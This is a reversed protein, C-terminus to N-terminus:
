FDILLITQIERTSPRRFVGDEGPSAIFEPIETRMQGCVVGLSNNASLTDLNESYHLPKPTGAVNRSPSVSVSFLRNQYDKYYDPDAGDKKPRSGTLSDSGDLSFSSNFGEIKLGSNLFRLEDLNLSFSIHVLVYVHSPIYDKFIPLIDFFYNLKKESSFSLKLLLTNNKFINEFLFDLPNISKVQYTNDFVFGLNGFLKEKNESSNIFEQFKIVDAQTGIVPFNFKGKSYTIFTNKNEFFLQNKIDAAFVYPAFALKDTELRTLWWKPSLISDAMYVDSTVLDGAYLTAGIQVNSAITQTLKLRYVHKDTVVYRWYNDSYIDQITESSEVFILNDTLCSFLTKLATITGGEVSVNILAKLITKYNESSDLKFDYIVGFNNYLDEHDIDASYAWLIILEDKQEVGDSDKYTLVAGAEDIIQTKAVYENDFINQNFYINGDKILFDVGPILFLSPSIIKNTLCGISKLNSDIACSYAGSNSIEKPYGFKFVNGAYFRDNVPQAGFVAGDPEFVFSSKNFDSKKIYVPLWKEKHFVPIDKCSYSNVVEVLNIYQQALEETMALTYRRLFEKEQFVQTWFSGLSNYVYSHETAKDSTYVNNLILSM